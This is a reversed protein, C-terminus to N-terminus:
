RAFEHIIRALNVSIAAILPFSASWPNLSDSWLRSCGVTSINEGRNGPAGRSGVGVRLGGAPCGNEGVWVFGSM